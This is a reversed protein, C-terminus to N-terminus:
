FCDPEPDCVDSTSLNERFCHFHIGSHAATLKVYRVLTCTYVEKIYGGCSATGPKLKYYESQGSLKLFGTQLASRSKEAKALIFNQKILLGALVILPAVASNSATTEFSTRSKICNLQLASLPLSSISGGEESNKDSNSDHEKTAMKFRLTFSITSCCSASAPM